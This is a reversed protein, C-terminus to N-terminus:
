DQGCRMAIPWQWVSSADIPCAPRCCAACTGRRFRDCLFDRCPQRVQLCLRTLTRRRTSGGTGARFSFPRSIPQGTRRFSAMMCSSCGGASQRRIHLPVMWHGGVPIDTTRLAMRCKLWAQQLRGLPGSCRGLGVSDAGCRSWRRRRSRGYGATKPLQRERRRM